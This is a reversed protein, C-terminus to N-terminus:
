QPLGSFHGILRGGMDWKHNMSLFHRRLLNKHENDEAKFTLLCGIELGQARFSRQVENQFGGVSDYIKVEVKDGRCLWKYVIRSVEKALHGVLLDEDKVVEVSYCKNASSFEKNCRLHLNDSSSLKEKYTSLGRIASFLDVPFLM